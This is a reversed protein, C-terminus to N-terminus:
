AIRVWLAGRGKGHLSAQDALTAVDDAPGEAFSVVLGAEGMRLKPAGVRDTFVDDLVQLVHDPMEFGPVPDVHIGHETDLRALAAGRLGLGRERAAEGLAIAWGRAAIQSEFGAIVHM